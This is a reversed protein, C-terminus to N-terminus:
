ARRVPRSPGTASSAGIAGAAPVIAGNENVYVPGNPRVSPRRHTTRRLANQIALRVNADTGNNTDGGVMEAVIRAGALAGFDCREPSVGNPSPMAATSSSGVMLLIATLAGAFLVIM